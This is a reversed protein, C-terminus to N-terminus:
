GYVPYDRSGRRGHFDEKQEYGRVTRESPSYVGAEMFRARLTSVAREAARGDVLATIKMGSLSLLHIEVNEELLVDYFLATIRSDYAAGSGIVSLMALDTEASVEGIRMITKYGDLIGITRWYDWGPIAFSLIAYGGASLEAASGCSVGSAALLRMVKPAMAPMVGTITIKTFNRDVTLKHIIKRELRGPPGSLLDRGCPASASRIVCARGEELKDSQFSM